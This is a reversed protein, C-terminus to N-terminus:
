AALAPTGEGAFESRGAQHLQWTLVLSVMLLGFLLIHEYASSLGLAETIRLIYWMVSLLLLNVQAKRVHLLRLSYCFPFLLVVGDYNHHRFMTITLLGLLALHWETSARARRLAFFLVIGTIIMGVLASLPNILASQLHLADTLNLIVDMLNPSDGIPFYGTKAVQLPELVVTQLSHINHAGAIWLWVLVDAVLAPVATWLAAGLGGRLLVYLFTGPAFNLKFYSLGALMSRGATLLPALLGLCWFLLVFLAQQGNGVTNRTPTALLFLGVLLLVQWKPFRYFLGAMVASVVAFGINLLGWAAAATREALLGLPVFFIYFEALYVPNETRVILHDPDHRLYVSWPDIHQLLIQAGSWQFDQSQHIANIFGVLASGAGLLCVLALLLKQATKLSRLEALM